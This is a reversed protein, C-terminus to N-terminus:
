GAGVSWVPESPSPVSQIGGMEKAALERGAQMFGGSPLSGAEGSAACHQDHSREVVLHRSVAPPIM